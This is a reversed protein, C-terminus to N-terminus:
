RPPREVSLSGATLHVDLRITPGASWGPPTYSELPQGNDWGSSRRGLADNEGSRVHTNFDIRANEPVDIRVRGFRQDVHVTVRQSSGLALRSLDVHQEGAFLRYHKLDGVTAPQYSREGWGWNLPLAGATIAVLLGAAALIAVSALTAGVARLSRRSRAVREATRRADEEPDGQRPPPGPGFLRPPPPEGEDAGDAGTSGAAQETAATLHAAQETAAAERAAQQTLAAEGAAQVTAATERAAQQTLAAEGAALGSAAPGGAPGSAPGAGTPAPPPPMPPLPAGQVEPGRNRDIRPGFLLLLGVIILVWTGPFWRGDWFGWGGFLM